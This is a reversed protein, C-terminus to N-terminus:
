SECKRKLRNLRHRLREVTGSSTRYGLLEVRAIRRFAGDVVELAKDPRGKRHEEAKALEEYPFPDFGTTFAAMEKWLIMAEDLRELKKLSMSRLKHIDWRLATNEVPPLGSLLREVGHFRGLSYLAGALGFLEVPRLNATWDRRETLLGNLFLALVALSAMDIRNHTIVRVIDAVVGTRLYRHYASPILAGDIDDTRSYDLVSREITQLSCSELSRRWIRRSPHLLDLHAFSPLPDKMKYLRFRSAVLHADFGRGNFSVLMDRDTGAEDLLNSFLRLAAREEDYDRMFVQHVELGASTFYAIGILFPVTGAGLSRGTTETDFFIVREPTYDFLLSLSSSPKAGSFGASASGPEEKPQSVSSDSLPLRGHANKPDILARAHFCAGESSSVLEGEVGPLALPLRPAPRVKRLRKKKDAKLFPDLREIRERLKKDNM